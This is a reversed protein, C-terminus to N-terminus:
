DLWREQRVNVFVADRIMIQLLEIEAVSALAAQAERPWRRTSLGGADARDRRLTAGGASAGQRSRGGSSIGVCETREARARDWESSNNASILCIDQIAM